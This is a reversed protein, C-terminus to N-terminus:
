LTALGSMHHFEWFPTSLASVTAPDYKAKWKSSVGLLSYFAPFVHPAVIRLYVYFQFEWFPTSLNVSKDTSVSPETCLKRFEWFPTSLLYVHRATKFVDLLYKVLFEWFPTSLPILLSLASALALFSVGLLSYFTPIFDEFWIVLVARKM